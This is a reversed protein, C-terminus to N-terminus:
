LPVQFIKMIATVWVTSFLVAYLPKIEHLRLLPFLITYFQLTWWMNWGNLHVFYGSRVLGWELFTFVIIWVSLYLLKNKFKKPYHYLFILVVCPYLVVKWLIDAMSPTLYIGIHQWLLKKRFLFNYALDGTIFFMITPYYKRWNRWDGWKLTIIIFIVALIIHLPV